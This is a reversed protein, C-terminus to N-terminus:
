RSGLGHPVCRPHHKRFQRSLRQLFHKALNHLHCLRLIIDVELHLYPTRKGEHLLLQARGHRHCRSDDAIQLIPCPRRQAHSAPPALLTARNVDVASQYELLLHRIDPEYPATPLTQRPPTSPLFPSPTSTLCARCQSPSCPTWTAEAGSTASSTSRLLHWYLRPYIKTHSAGVTAWPWAAKAGVDLLRKLRRCHGMTAWTWTSTEM